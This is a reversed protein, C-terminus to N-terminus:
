HKSEKQIVQLNKIIYGLEHMIKLTQKSKNLVPDLWKIYFAENIKQQYKISAYDLISFRDGICSNLCDENSKIVFKPIRM